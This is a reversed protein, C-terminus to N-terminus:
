CHFALTLFHLIKGPLLAPVAFGEFLQLIPVLGLQFSHLFFFLSESIFHLFGKIM